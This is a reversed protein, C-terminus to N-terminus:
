DEFMYDCIKNVEYEKRQKCKELNWQEGYQQVLKSKVIEFSSTKYNNVKKHEYNKINQNKERELVVLNGISNLEEGWEEWVKEKDNEDNYSQIHEIDVDLDFLNATVEGVKKVNTSLYDEELVASLRCLINKVKYNYVINGVLVDKFRKKEDVSNNYTTEIHNIVDKYNGKVIYNLLEYNFKGRIKNIVKSYSVSYLLYLKTLKETFEFLKEYRSDDDKYKFLFVFNYIWFGGYRSWWWLRQLSKTKVNKYESERWKNEWQYRLEIIEDMEKLSLNINDVNNKFNDWRNINFLTEFLRDFFTNRNYTYLVTPLNNKAILYYQYIQLIDSINVLNSGLKKNKKDIKEYLVSIENFIEDGAGRQKLYEFMRIKFIDGANLDLGTTNIADFIELTKSLGAKTEIVVFYIESYVFDIFDSINFTKEGEVKTYELLINKIIDANEIYRNLNDSKLGELSEIAILEEMKKQQQGNNVETRLWDLTIDKLSDVYYMKLVKLLILFTTIRQQGDIIKQEGNEISTLQMTGIFMPEKSGIGDYGCYSIFIDSLFKRIQHERWSYPRQYIPILYKINRNLITNRETKLNNKLTFTGANIEFNM